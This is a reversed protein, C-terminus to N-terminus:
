KYLNKQHLLTAVSRYEVSQRGVLRLNKAKYLTLTEHVHGGPNVFAGQPGEKSMSFIQQQDGLQKGCKKCVLVRCQSLFSLTVRLRQVPSNLSLLTNKMKDELPLNTTVWWSLQTPHTPVSSISTSLSSLKSLEARVRTVLFSPSYQSWVWSPLPSLVHSPCRRRYRGRTRYLSSSSSSSPSVAASSSCSPTRFRSMFSFCFKKEDDDPTNTTNVDAEGTTDLNFFRNWSPIRLMQDPEGLEVDALMKVEGVLNGDVQRRTSILRFRQRGRAKIKLGVNHNVRDDDDTDDYNIYEFIEATTGVLGAWSASDAKLSVVGFTKTSEIVNRSIFININEFNKM